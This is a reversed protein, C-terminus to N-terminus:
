QGLGEKLYPRTTIGGHIGKTNTNKRPKPPLEEHKSVTVGSIVSTDTKGTTPSATGYIDGNHGFRYIQTIHDQLSRKALTPRTKRIATM